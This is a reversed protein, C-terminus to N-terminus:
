FCPRKCLFRYWPKLAEATRADTVISDVRRRIREMARYDEEERLAMLEEFTIEPWGAAERRAQINRNVESWGACILDVDERAYVENIGVHFNHMRQSQWGPALTRAWDPDTARNGRDDIYSPTRQFVTLHKAYRALFPVCQVATAGTGIVAVRKDALRTLEPN